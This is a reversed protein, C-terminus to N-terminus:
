VDELLHLSTAIPALPNRLEHAMIALFENKRRDADILAENARHAATVDIIFAVGEAESLRTAAFLGWWREGDPRVYEVEHPVTHGTALLEALAGNMEAQREPATLTDWTM